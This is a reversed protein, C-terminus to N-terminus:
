FNNNSNYNNNSYNNYNNNNYNNNNYNNNNYNNNNYNNNNYNKNYVNANNGTNMNYNPDNNGVYVENTTTGNALAKRRKCYCFICIAVAIVVVVVVVIIVIMTTKGENEKTNEILVNGTCYFVIVLYKGELSGLDREDKKITFYKTVSVIEGHDYENDTKSPSAKKYTDLVPNAMSAGDDYFKYLLYDENFSDATVKFYIEEGKKFDSSDFIINLDSSPVTVKEYKKLDIKFIISITGTGSGAGDSLSEKIIFTFLIVFLIQMKM